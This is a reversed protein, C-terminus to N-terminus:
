AKTVKRSSLRIQLVALLGEVAIGFSMKSQGQTRDAFHIPIERISAGAHHASYTTHIQFAYGTLNGGIPTIAELCESRWAKFGGTLDRVPLHLIRRSFINAIVSLAKRRWAWNSDVTGGRTYRSGIVLDAGNEIAALLMPISSTPHSGDADMQIVLQYGEKIAWQFGIRYANGLGRPGSLALLKIRGPAHSDAVRQVVSSTGDPSQDDLVLIDIPGYSTETAILSELIVSINEVENYTPIVALVKLHTM